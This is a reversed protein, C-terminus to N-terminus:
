QKITISGSGMKKKNKGHWTGRVTLDGSGLQFIDGYVDGYIYLDGSGVQSAKGLVSYHIKLDGSGTQSANGGVNGKITVDGSGMQQVDGIVKGSITLDGSGNQIVSQVDGNVTVNSSGTQQLIAGNGNIVFDRSGRLDIHENPFAQIKIPPQNETSTVTINGISFVFKSGGGSSVTVNGDGGGSTVTGTNGGFTSIVSRLISTFANSNQQTPSERARILTVTTTGNDPNDTFSVRAGYGGESFVTNGNSDVIQVKSGDVYFGGSCGGRIMFTGISWCDFRYAQGANLTLVTTQPSSTDTPTAGSADAGSAGANGIRSRQNPPADSNDNSSRKSSGNSGPTSM